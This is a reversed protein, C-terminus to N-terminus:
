AYTGGLIRGLIQRVRQAGEEDQAAVCLPLEGGLLVHPQTFFRLADAGFAEKAAAYVTAVRDPAASSTPADLLLALRNLLMEEQSRAALFEPFICEFTTPECAM